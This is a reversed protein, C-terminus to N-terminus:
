EALPIFPGVDFSTGREILSIDIDELNLTATWGDRIAKESGSLIKSGFIKGNKNALVASEMEGDITVGNPAVKGKGTKEAQSIFEMFSKTDIKSPEPIAIKMYKAYQKAWVTKMAEIFEDESVFIAIDIDPLKTPLDITSSGQIRIDKGYKGLIVRMEKSFQVFDEMKGFSRPFSRTKGLVIGEYIVDFFEFRIKGDIEKKQCYAIAQATKEFEDGNKLLNELATVAYKSEGFKPNQLGKILNEINYMKDAASNLPFNRQKALATIKELLDAAHINESLWVRADSVVPIGDPGEHLILTPTQDLGRVGGRVSIITMGSAFLLQSLLFIKARTKAADDGPMKDIEALKDLTDKGLLVLNTLDTAITARIMPVYWTDALAALKAMNGTLRETVEAERAVVVLRGAGLTGLSLISAAIQGADMVVRKASWEEDKYMSYLDMVAATGGALASLAFFVQAAVPTATGESLVVLAALGIAALGLGIWGLIDKWQWPETMNIRGSIGKGADYLLVGKPLHEKDNLKDFLERPPAPTSGDNTRIIKNQDDVAVKRKFPHDPRVLDVVWWKKDEEDLYYYMPLEISKVGPENQFQEWSYFIARVRTIYKNNKNSSIEKLAEGYKFYAAIQESDPDKPKKEKVKESVWLNFGERLYRFSVVARAWNHKRLEDALHLEYYSVTPETFAAITTTESEQTFPNTETDTSSVETAATSTEKRADKTEKKFLEYFIDAYNAAQQIKKQDDATLDTEKKDIISSLDKFTIKLLRYAIYTQRNITQDTAAQMYFQEVAADVGEIEEEINAPVKQEKLTKGGKAEIAAEFVEESKIEKFQFIGNVLVFNREERKELAPGTLVVTISRGTEPISKDEQRRDWVQRMITNLRVDVNTDGDFDYSISTPDKEMDNFVLQELRSEPLVFPIDPVFVMDGNTGIGAIKLKYHYKGPVSEDTDEDEKSEDKVITFRFTDNFTGLHVEAAIHTPEIAIDSRVVTDLKIKSVNFSLSYSKSGSKIEYTGDQIKKKPPLIEIVSEVPAVGGNDDKSVNKLKIKSASFGETPDSEVIRIERSLDLGNTEIEVPGRTEGTDTHYVSLYLKSSKVSFHLKLEKREDGDGDIFLNLGRSVNGEVFSYIGPLILISGRRAMLDDLLRLTRQGFRGDVNKGELGADRQFKELAQKTEPGFKKDLETESIPYHLYILSKQLRTVYDGKSGEEIAFGYDNILQFQYVDKLYGSQLAPNKTEHISALRELVDIDLGEFQEPHERSKEYEKAWSLLYNLTETDLIGDAPHSAWETQYTKKFFQQIEYVHNAYAIPSSGPYIDKKLFINYFKFLLHWSDLNEKSAKNYNLGAESYIKEEDPKRQILKRQVPQSQQVVHTLEHALLEKGEHTEPAYKGSNFYIDSDTTFAQAHISQSLQAAFPDAHIQVKSFDQQFRSEMFSLASPEMSRGSGKSAEISSSVQDDVQASPASQKKQIFSKVPKRQLKDEEECDTCKRQLFSADPASVVEKAMQDAEHELPDDAAGILLKRQLPLRELGSDMLDDLSLESADSNETAPAVPKTVPQSSITALESM